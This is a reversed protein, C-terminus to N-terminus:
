EVTTQHIRSVCVDITFHNPSGKTDASQGLFHETSERKPIEESSKCWFTSACDNLFLGELFDSIISGISPRGCKKKSGANIDWLQIEPTSSCPIKKCCNVM